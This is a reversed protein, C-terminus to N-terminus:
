ATRLRKLKTSVSADLTLTPTEIVVGGIVSPDITEELVVRRASTERKIFDSLKQRLEPTLTRATTVNAVVTGASALEYEIDGILQVLQTHLRHEVVYAALQRLVEASDEGALLRQAVSRAILRRSAM